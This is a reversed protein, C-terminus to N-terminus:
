WVRAPAAHIKQCHLESSHSRLYACHALVGRHHEGEMQWEARVTTNTNCSAPSATMAKPSHSRKPPGMASNAVSLFDGSSKKMPLNWSKSPLLRWAKTADQPLHCVKCMSKYSPWCNKPQGECFQINQHQTGHTHHSKVKRQKADM